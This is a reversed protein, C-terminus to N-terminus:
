RGTAGGQTQPNRGHTFRRLSLLNPTLAPRGEEVSATFRSLFANLCRQVEAPAACSPAAPADFLPPSGTCRDRGDCAPGDPVDEAHRGITRHLQILTDQEHSADNATSRLRDRRRKLELTTMPTKTLSVIGARAQCYHPSIMRDANVSISSSTTIAMM